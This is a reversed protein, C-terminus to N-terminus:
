YGLESKAWDSMKEPSWRPNWVLNISVETEPDLARLSKEAWATLSDHMPCGPTTLTMTVKVYHEKIDLGYVLGLDVINIGIEPDIVSKLAQMVEDESLVM